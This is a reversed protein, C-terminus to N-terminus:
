AHTCDRPDSSLKAAMTDAMRSGARQTCPRRAHLAAVSSVGARQLHAPGPPLFDLVEDIANRPLRSSRPKGSIVVYCVHQTVRCAHQTSPNAAQTNTAFDCRCLSAFRSTVTETLHAANDTTGPSIPSKQVPSTGWCHLRVCQTHTRANTARRRVQHRLRHLHLLPSNLDVCSKKEDNPRQQQM